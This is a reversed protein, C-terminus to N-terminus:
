NVPDVNISNGFKATFGIVRNTLMTYPITGPATQDVGIRYEGGNETLFFIGEIDPSLNYIMYIGIVESDFTFDQEELSGSESGFLYM